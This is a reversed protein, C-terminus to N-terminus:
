KKQKKAAKELKALFKKPEKDFSEQCGSCCLKIEQGQYVFVHADEDLKSDEVLCVKLPYPRPKDATKDKPKDEALAHGTTGLLASALLLSRLLRPLKM